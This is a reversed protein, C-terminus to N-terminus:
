EQFDSKENVNDKHAQHNNNMHKKLTNSKKCNYGCYHCKMMKKVAKKKKVDKTRDLKEM